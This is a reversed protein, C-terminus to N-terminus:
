RRFGQRYERPTMQVIERFRRNFNPLNGFGSEGAIETVSLSSTLLLACSQAIRTENLYRNFVWGTKTRFFRSFAAPSMGALSAADSQAIAEGSHEKVWKLVKGLRADVAGSGLASRTKHPEYSKANLYQRKEIGAVGELLAIFSATGAAPGRQCFEDLKRAFDAVKGGSFHIGRASAELLAHIAANEPLGWFSKGWNEPLFQIVIAQASAGGKPGSGYAHPIHPGILCLDGEYFPLISNGVYRVGHGRVVYTLEVEPHHHWIFDFRPQDIQKLYFARAGAGPLIEFQPPSQATM